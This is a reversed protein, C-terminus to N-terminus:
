LSKQIADLLGQPDDTGIRYKKGGIMKLQVAKDGSVNFLWGHPTYRMGWGYYWPNKVIKCSEVERLNFKKRILGIGFSIGLVNKRIEVTLTAFFVLCIVLLLFVTLLIWNLKSAMLMYALFILGIVLWFIIM